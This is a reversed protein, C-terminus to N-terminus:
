AMQATQGKRVDEPLLFHATDYAPNSLVCQKGVLTRTNIVVPAVLNATMKTFDQPIRVIVLTCLADKETAGICAKEEPSLQPRYDPVYVFPDTVVFALDPNKLSQLWQLPCEVKADFPLMAFQKEGEFGYLGEPFKLIEEDKIEFTGLRSSQYTM